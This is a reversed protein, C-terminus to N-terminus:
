FDNRHREARDKAIRRKHLGWLAALAAIIAVILAYAVMQRNTM